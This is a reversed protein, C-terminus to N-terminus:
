YIFFGRTDFVLGEPHPTSSGQSMFPTGFITSHPFLTRMTTKRALHNSHANRHAYTLSPHPSPPLRSPVTALTHTRAQHTRADTRSHTRPHTHTRTAACRQSSLLAASPDDDIASRRPALFGVSFILRFFDAAEPPARLGMAAGATQWETRRAPPARTISKHAQTISRHHEQSARPVRVLAPPGGKQRAPHQLLGRRRARAVRQEGRVCHSVCCTM